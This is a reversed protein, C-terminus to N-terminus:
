NEVPAFPDVKVRGQCGSGTDALKAFQEAESGAAPSVVDSVAPALAWGLDSLSRTVLHLTALEASHTSRPQSRQIGAHAARFSEDMVAVAQARPSMRTV